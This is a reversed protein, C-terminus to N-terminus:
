CIGDGVVDGDPLAGRGGGAGDHVAGPWIGASRDRAPQGQFRALLDHDRRSLPDAAPVARLGRGPGADGPAPEPYVGAGAGWGGPFDSVAGKGTVRFVGPGGGRRVLEASVRDCAYRANWWPPDFEDTKVMSTVGDCPGAVTPMAM